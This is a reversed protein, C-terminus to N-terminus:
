IVPNTRKHRKLSLSSTLFARELEVLLSFTIKTSVENAGTELAVGAELSGRTEVYNLKNPAQTPGIRFNVGVFPLSIPILHNRRLVGLLEAVDRSGYENNIDTGIRLQCM